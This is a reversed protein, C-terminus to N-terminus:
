TGEHATSNQWHCSSQCFRKDQVLWRFNCVTLWYRDLRSGNVAKWEIGSIRPMIGDRLLNELRAIADSVNPLNVGEVSAPLGTSKGDADREDAIGFVMDGGAANAFSSVDYLFERKKDPDSDPLQQKYDLTRSESGKASVFSEIDVKTIHNLPKQIV